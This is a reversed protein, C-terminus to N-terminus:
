LLGLGIPLLSFFGFIIIKLNSKTLFVRRFHKKLGKKISLLILILNRMTRLLIYNLKPGDIQLDDIMFFYLYLFVLIQLFPKTIKELIDIRKKVITRLTKTRIGHNKTSRKGISTAM